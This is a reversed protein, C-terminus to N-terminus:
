TIMGYEYPTWSVYFNNSDFSSISPVDTASGSSPDPMSGKMNNQVNGALNIPPMQFPLINTKKVPKKFTEPSIQKSKATVFKNVTQDVNIFSQEQSKWPIVPITFPLQPKVPELPTQPPTPQFVTPIRPTPKTSPEQSQRSEETPKIPPQTNTPLPSPSPTSPPTIPSPLPSDKSAPEILENLRSDGPPIDSPGGKGTGEQTPINGPGFLSSNNKLEKVKEKQILGKLEKNFADLLRNFKETTSLQSFNNREQLDIASQFAQWMRGANDNIDKLLPRFLMAASTRIVEEGPALMTPVSDVNGSGPGGV